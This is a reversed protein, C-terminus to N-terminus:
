DGVKAWTKSLAGGYLLSFVTQNMLLASNYKIDARCVVDTQPDIILTVNNITTKVVIYEVAEYPTLDYKYMRSCKRTLPPDTGNIVEWEVDNVTISKMVLKFRSLEDNLLIYSNFCDYGKASARKIFDDAFEISTYASTYETDSLNDTSLYNTLEPLSAFTKSSTTGTIVPAQTAIFWFLSGIVIATISIATIKKWTIKSHHKPHSFTSRYPIPKGINPLPENTKTEPPRVYYPTTRPKNACGHSEPLHHEACYYKHCYNCHFVLADKKACAECQFHNM